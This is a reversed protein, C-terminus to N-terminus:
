RFAARKAQCEAGSQVVIRESNQEANLFDVLKNGADDLVSCTHGAANRTPAEKAYSPLSRRTVTSTAVVQPNSTVHQVVVPQTVVQNPCFLNGALWGGFGANETHRADNGHNAGAVRGIRELLERCMSSSGQTYGSPLGSGGYRFPTVTQTGIVMPQAMATQPCVWVNGGNTLRQYQCTGGVAVQANAWAAAMMLTVTVLIRKFNM